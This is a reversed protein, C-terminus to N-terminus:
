LGHLRTPAELVLWWSPTPGKVFRGPSKGHHPSPQEGNGEACDLWGLSDVDKCGAGNLEQWIKKVDAAMYSTPIRPELWLNLM